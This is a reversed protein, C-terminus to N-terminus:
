CSVLVKKAVIARLRELEGIGLRRITSTTTRALGKRIVPAAFIFSRVLPPPAIVISEATKGGPEHTTVVPVAFFRGAPSLEDVGQSRGFTALLCIVYEGNVGHRDLVVCYKHGHMENKNSKESNTLMYKHDELFGRFADSIGGETHTIEGPEIEFRHARREEFYTDIQATYYLRLREWYLDIGM